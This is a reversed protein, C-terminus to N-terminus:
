LFHKVVSNKKLLGCAGDGLGMVRLGIFELGMGGLGMGGIGIVELGMGGLGMGGIGIVEQGM